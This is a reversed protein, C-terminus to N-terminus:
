KTHIGYVKEPIKRRKNKLYILAAFFNYKVKLHLQMIIHDYPDM